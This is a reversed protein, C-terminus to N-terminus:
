QSLGEALEWFYFYPIFYPLPIVLCKIASMAFIMGTKPPTPIGPLQDPGHQPQPSLTASFYQLLNDLLLPPEPTVESTEVVVEEVTEEVVGVPFLRLRPCLLDLSPILFPKESNPQDPM